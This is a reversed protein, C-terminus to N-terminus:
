ETPQPRGRRPVMLASDPAVDDAVVVFQGIRSRDGVLVPGLVVVFAGISVDNGIRPCLKGDGGSFPMPERPIVAAFTYLSLNAGATGQFVVGTPHPIYLGPGIEAAPDIVAHHVIANIRAIARASRTRGRRFAAHALRHLACCMLSPMLLTGIARLRGPRYGQFAEAERAYHILDATLLNRLSSQSTEKPDSELGNSAASMFKSKKQVTNINRIISTAHLFVVRQGLFHVFILSAGDRM